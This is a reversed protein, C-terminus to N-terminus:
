VGVGVGVGAAVTEPEGVTSALSLFLSTSSGLFDREWRLNGGGGEAGVEAVVGVWVWGWVGVWVGVVGIGAEVEVKNIGPETGGSTFGFGSTSSGLFGKEPDWRLNGGETAVVGVGVGVRVGVGVGAEAVSRRTSSSVLL